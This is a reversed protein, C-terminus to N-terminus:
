KQNERSNAPCLNCASKKYNHEDCLETGEPWTRRLSKKGGAAASGTFGAFASTSAKTGRQFKEEQLLLVKMQDLSRMERLIQSRQVGYGTLSVCAM